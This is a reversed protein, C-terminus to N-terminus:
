PGPRGTPRGSSTTAAVRASTSASTGSTSRCSRSRTATGLTLAAANSWAWTSCEAWSTARSSRSAPMGSTSSSRDPRGSPVGPASATTARRGAGAPAGVTRSYAWWSTCGGPSAAPQALSGNTAVSRSPRSYPRPAASSLAPTQAWRAATRACRAAWGSPEPTPRVTNTSPSSSIPDGDNWANRASCPSRRRASTSTTASEVLAATPVGARVVVSRPRTCATMSTRVRSWVTCEPINPPAAGSGSANSTRSSAESCASSPDTATGPRPSM